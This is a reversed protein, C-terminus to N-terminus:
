WSVNVACASSIPTFPPTFADAAAASRRQVTATDVKETAQQHACLWPDSLFEFSLGVRATRRAATMITTRATGCQAPGHAGVIVTTLLLRYHPGLTIWAQGLHPEVKDWHESVWIADHHASLPPVCWYSLSYIYDNLWINISHLKYAERSM